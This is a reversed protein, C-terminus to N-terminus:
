KNETVPVWKEPNIETEKGCRRCKFVLLSVDDKIVSHKPEEPLKANCTGCPYRKMQPPADEQIDRNPPPEPASAITSTHVQVVPQGIQDIAKLLKQLATTFKGLTYVILFLVTISLLLGVLLTITQLLNILDNMFNLTSSGLNAGYHPGTTM